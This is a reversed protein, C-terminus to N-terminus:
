AKLESHLIYPEPHLTFPTPRLTYPTPHQAYRTSHLTYPTPHLAYPEPNFLELCLNLSGRAAREAMGGAARWEIECKDWCGKGVGM